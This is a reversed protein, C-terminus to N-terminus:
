DALHTYRLCGTCDTKKTQSAITVKEDAPMKRFIDDQIEQATKKKNEESIKM